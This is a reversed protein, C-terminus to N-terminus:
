ARAINEARLGKAGRGQYAEWTTALGGRHRGPIAPVRIPTFDQSM